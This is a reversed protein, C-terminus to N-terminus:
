QSPEGQSDDDADADDDDDYGDGLDPLVEKGRLFVKTDRCANLRADIEARLMITLEAPNRCRGFRSGAIAPLSLMQSRITSRYEDFGPAIQDAPILLKQLKEAGVAGDEGDLDNRERM